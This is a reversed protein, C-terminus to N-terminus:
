RTLTKYIIKVPAKCAKALSRLHEGLLMEHSEEKLGYGKEPFSAMNVFLRGPFEFMEKQPPSLVYFGYWRSQSFPQLQDPNWCSPSYITTKVM